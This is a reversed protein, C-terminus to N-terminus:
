CINGSELLVYRMLIWSCVQQRIYETGGRRSDELPRESVQIDFLVPSHVQLVVNEPKTGPIVAKMDSNRVSTM